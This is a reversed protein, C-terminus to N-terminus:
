DMVVNMRSHRSHRLNMVALLIKREMEFMVSCFIFIASTLCATLYSNETKTHMIDSQSLQQPVLLQISSPPLPRFQKAQLPREHLENEVSSEINNQETRKTLQRMLGTSHNFRVQIINNPPFSAIKFTINKLTINKRHNNTFLLLLFIFCNREHQNELCIVYVTSCINQIQNNFSLIKILCLRKLINQFWEYIFQLVCKNCHILQM